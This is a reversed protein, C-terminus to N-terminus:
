LFHNKFLLEFMKANQYGYYDDIINALDEVNKNIRQTIFPSNGFDCIVNVVYTMIWYLTDIWLNHITYRLNMQRNSINNMIIEM